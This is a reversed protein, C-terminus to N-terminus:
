SRRESPLAYLATYQLFASRVMRGGTDNHPSPLDSVGVTGAGCKVVSQGGNIM